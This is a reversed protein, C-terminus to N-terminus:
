KLIIIIIAAKIIRITARIQLLSKLNLKIKISKNLDLSNKKRKKEKIKTISVFQFLFEKIIIIKSVKYDFTSEIM